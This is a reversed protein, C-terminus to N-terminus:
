EPTEREPRVTPAAAVSGDAPSPPSNRLWREWAERRFISDASMFASDPLQGLRIEARRHATAARESDGLEKWANVIQILAVMSVASDDYRRETTEYFDIAERYRGVDFLCDARYLHALRLADIELPDLEALTRVDLAAVVRDFETRAAELDAVRRVDIADRQSPSLAGDALRKASEAAQGRRCEGLQFQTLPARHDDPYRRLAEDLLTAGRDLDGGAVVLRALELLAERYEEADPRLGATGDVIPQLRAVADARRGLSELCRSLPVAARTALPSLPFEDIVRAYETTAEDLRGEGHLIAAIRSMAEPRRPEDRPTGSVFARFSRIADEGWGSREYCDAAMWLSDAWATPIERAAGADSSHRVFWDGAAKLLRSARARAEPETAQSGSTLQNALANSTSALRLVLQHSIPRGPVFESALKAYELAEDLEGAVLLADHRDILSGIVSAPPVRKTVAESSSSNLKTRLARYDALADLHAGRAARTEARGFLAVPACSEGAYDALVSEFRQEAEDLEGRQLALEGLLVIAEGKALTKDAAIAVARDLTERALDSEGIEAYARGLLGLLEAFADPTVSGRVEVPASEIRRLDLLLRDAADRPKELALRSEAQRAAAWAEDEVTITPDARYTGIAVLLKEYDPHEARMTEGWVREIVLRNVRSRMVDAEGPSADIRGIREMADDARGLHVLAAAWRLLRDRDLELGNEEARAYRDAIQADNEVAGTGIRAASLWDATVADFRAKDSAAAEELKPAIRDFLITRADDLRGAALLGDVQDLAGAFDNDRPLSSVYILGGVVAGTAVLLTPLQWVDRWGLRSEAASAAPAPTMAAHAGSHPTVTPPKSQDLGDPM